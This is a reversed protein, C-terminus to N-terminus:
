NRDGFLALIYIFIMVLDLYLQISAFIYEDYGLGHKETIMDIDIIVYLSALILGVVSILIVAWRGSAFIMFPIMAFSLVTAVILMTCLTFMNRKTYLAIVVLTTFMVLALMASIFVDRPDFFSTLTAIM